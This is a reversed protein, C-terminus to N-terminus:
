KLILKILEPNNPDKEQLYQTRIEEWMRWLSQSATDNEALDSQKIHHNKPKIPENKFKFSHIGLILTELWIPAYFSLNKEDWVFNSRLQKFVERKHNITGTKWVMKMESSLNTLSYLFDKWQTKHKIIENSLAAKADIKRIEDCYEEKNFVGDIYAEKIRDKKKQLEEVAISQRHSQERWDELEKDAIENIFKQSWKTVKSDMAICDALKLIIADLDNELVGKVKLGNRKRYANYYYKRSYFKPQKMESIDLRCSNCQTTNKISFRKRCDCTVRNVEEPTCVYGDPSKIFHSFVSIKKTTKQNGRKGLRRQIRWYEEETIMPTICGNIRISEQNHYFFGAIETRTLFRYFSSKNILKGGSRKKIPTTLKVEERLWKFVKYPSIDDDLIKRLAQKMYKWRKPDDRWDREGKLKDQNNLYGLIAVRNPVGNRAKKSNGDRIKKSLERSYETASAMEIATIITNDEPLYIKDKTIIAKLKGSQLLDIIWGGERMNRVLRDIKWCIIVQTKGKEIRYMMQEFLPRQGADKASKSESYNEGINVKWYGVLDDCIDSQTELSLIQRSKDEQSKRRYIDASVGRLKEETNRYM